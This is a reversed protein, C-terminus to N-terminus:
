LWTFLFNAQRVRAGQLITNITDAVCNLTQIPDHLAPAPQFCTFVSIEPQILHYIARYILTTWIELYLVM